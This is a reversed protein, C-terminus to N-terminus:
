HRTPEVSASIDTEIRNCDTSIELLHGVEVVVSELGDLLEFRGLRVEDLCRCLELELLLLSGGLLVPLGDVVFPVRDGDCLAVHGEGLATRRVKRGSRRGDENM